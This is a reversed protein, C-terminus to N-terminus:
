FELAAIQNKPKQKQIRGNERHYEVALMDRKEGHTKHTLAGNHGKDGLSMIGRNAKKAM